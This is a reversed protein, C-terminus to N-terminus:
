SHSEKRNTVSLVDVLKLFSCPVCLSRHTVSDLILIRSSGPVTNVTSRAGPFKNSKVM